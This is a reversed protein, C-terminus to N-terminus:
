LTQATRFTRSPNPPAVAKNTGASAWITWIGDVGGIQKEEVRKWEKLQHIAMTAGHDPIRKSMKRVVVM